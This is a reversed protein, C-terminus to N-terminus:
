KIEGAARRAKADRQPVAGPRQETIMRPHADPQIVEEVGIAGAVHQRRRPLLEVERM